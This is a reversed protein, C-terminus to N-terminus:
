YPGYCTTGEEQVTFIQCVLIGTARPTPSCLLQVQRTGIDATTFEVSEPLGGLAGGEGVIVDIQTHSLLQDDPGFAKLYITYTGDAAPDFGDAPTKM